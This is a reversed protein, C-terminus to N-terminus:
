HIIRVAILILAGIVAAAIAELRLSRLSTRHVRLRGIFDIPLGSPDSGDFNDLSTWEHFSFSQFYVFVISYLMWLFTLSELAKFNNDIALQQHYFNSKQPNQDCTGSEKEPCISEAAYTQVTIEQSTNQTYVNPMEMGLNLIVLFVLIVLYGNWIPLYSYILWRRYGRDFFGKFRGGSQFYENMALVLLVGQPSERGYWRAADPRHDINPFCRLVSQLFLKPWALPGSYRCLWRTTWTFTWWKSIGYLWSRTGSPIGDFVKDLVPMRCVGYVFLPLFVAMALAVIIGSLWGFHAGLFIAYALSPLFIWVRLGNPWLFLRDSSAITELANLQSPNNKHGVSRSRCSSKFFYRRKDVEDEARQPDVVRLLMFPPALNGGYFPLNEVAAM